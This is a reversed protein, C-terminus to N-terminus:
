FYITGNRISEKLCKTVKSGIRVVNDAADTVADYICYAVEAVCLKVEKKLQDTVADFSKTLEVLKAKAKIAMDNACPIASIGSGCDAYEESLDTVDEALTNIKKFKERVLKKFNQLNVNSCATTEVLVTQPINNLTDLNVSICVAPDITLNLAQEKLQNIDEIVPTVQSCMNDKVYKHQFDAYNVVSQWLKNFNKLTYNVLNLLKQIITEVM